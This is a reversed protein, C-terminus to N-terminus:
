IRVEMIVSYGAVSTDEREVHAFTASEVVAGGNSRLAEVVADGLELFRAQTAFTLTVIWTVSDSVLTAADRAVPTLVLYDTGEVQADGPSFLFRPVQAGLVGDVIAGLRQESSRLKM